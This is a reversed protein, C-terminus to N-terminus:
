LGMNKLQTKITDLRAMKERIENTLKLIRQGDLDEVKVVPGNFRGDHSQKDFILNQPNSTLMRGAINFQEGLRHAQSVLAGIEESLGKSEFMLKGALADKEQDTMSYM